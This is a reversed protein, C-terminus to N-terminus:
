YRQAMLPLLLSVIPVRQGSEFLVNGQEIDANIEYGKDTEKVMEMILLEDLGQKIFPYQVVMESSIFTKLNGEVAPIVKSVDQTINQVGEPLNLKWKSDVLGDGISVKMQNMALYFGKSLFQDASANLKAQDSERSQSLAELSEADLNGLTMDLHLNDVVGSASALQNGDLIHNTEVRGTLKDKSSDSRYNFNVGHFTRTSDSASMTIEKLEFQNTGLWFSNERRGAGSGNLHHFSISDGNVFRLQVSPMDLTFNVEGLITANGKLESRAIAVVSGDDNSRNVTDLIM